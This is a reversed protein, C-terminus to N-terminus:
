LNSRPNDGPRCTTPAPFCAIQRHLAHMCAGVAASKNNKIFDLNTIKDPDPIQIYCNTNDSKVIIYINNDKLSEEIICTNKDRQIDAGKIFSMHGNM